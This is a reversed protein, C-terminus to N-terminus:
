SVRQLHSKTPMEFIELKYYAVQEEKFTPLRKISVKILGTNPLTFYIRDRHHESGYDFRMKDLKDFSQENLNLLLNTWVQGKNLYRYVALGFSEGSMTEFRLGLGERVSQLSLCVSGHPEMLEFADHIVEEEFFRLAEKLIIPRSPSAVIMFDVRSYLKGIYFMQRISAHLYVDEIKQAKVSSLKEWHEHAFSNVSARRYQRVGRWRFLYIGIKRQEKDKCNLVAVVKRNSLDRGLHRPYHLPLRMSLGINTMFMTSPISQPTADDDGTTIQGSDKFHLPSEALVGTYEESRNSARWAFISHDNTTRLLELQLRHFAKKGEGYLLPMNIDFLGMLCYAVDEIRTTERESAWSMRQAISANFVYGSEMLVDQGIKTITSVPTLLSAKTGIESWDSAYFIVDSPAILEQLTWGRKFWRSSRFTSSPEGDVGDNDVDALYAYCVRAEQYWRFMSNIAESLEASSAKNICCTDVWAFKLGDSEAQACCQKIKRFGAKIEAEPTGIEDFAVEGDGLTHSLIAYPPIASQFEHLELTSINLLWMVSNKARSDHLDTFSKKTQSAVNCRETRNRLAQLQISIFTRSSKLIFANNFNAEHPQPCWWDGSAGRVIV